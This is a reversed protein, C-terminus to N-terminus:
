LCLLMRVVFMNLLQNRKTNQKFKNAAPAELYLQTDQQSVAMSMPSSAPGPSARRLQAKLRLVEADRELLFQVLTPAIAAMHGEVDTSALASAM